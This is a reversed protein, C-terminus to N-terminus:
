DAECPPGHGLESVAGESRPLRRITFWAQAAALVLLIVTIHTAASYSGHSWWQSVSETLSPELSAYEIPRSSLVGAVIAAALAVATVSLAVADILLPQRTPRAAIIVVAAAAVAIALFQLVPTHSNTVSIPRNGLSVVVGSFAARQQVDIVGVVFLYVVAGLGGMVSRALSSM